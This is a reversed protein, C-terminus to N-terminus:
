GGSRFFATKFEKKDGRVRAKEQQVKEGRRGEGGGQMRCRSKNQRMKTEGYKEKRRHRETQRDGWGGM